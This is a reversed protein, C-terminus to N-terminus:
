FAADEDGPERKEGGGLLRVSNANLTLEFRTEGEKTTYTNTDVSGAVFLMKGKTIFPTLTEALQGWISVKVWIPEADKKQRDVALSFGAVSQGSSTKRLVAPGGARGVTAGTIM